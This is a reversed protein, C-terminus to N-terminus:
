VLAWKKSKNKPLTGNEEGLCIESNVATLGVQPHIFGALSSLSCLCSNGNVQMLASDGSFAIQAFM